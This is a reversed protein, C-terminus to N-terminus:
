FAGGEAIEISAWSMTGDGNSVLFQGAVGHNATGNENTPFGITGVSDIYESRLIDGAILSDSTVGSIYDNMTKIYEADNVTWIELPINSLICDSIFEDTLSTYNISAYVENSGTRLSTVTTLVSDDATSSLYGLRATIDADKVYGLFDSNFSIYTVKGKMGMSKVMNVISVIQEQTYNGSSKLEIYPHLDIHKCLKIFEEFTPIKTGIYDNSFWSGFDYGLLQNYTLNSINGSGNSTRDITNDHLLVAVGDSTFAVDCEAYEFGKKKSLIYAPLTNEPAGASYGRHNVAKITSSYNISAEIPNESLYLEVASQVQEDTAVDPLDDMTIYGIDNELESIKTPIANATIYGVDNELESVKTPVTVDTGGGSNQILAKVSAISDGNGDTVDGAFIANGEWDLTHINRRDSNSSGYGVIHAYKNETDEVNYAGQVHQYYGSAVTGLGEAHSYNANAKTHSGEAHSYSGNAETSNGEAHSGSGNSKSSYGEVHSYQGNAETNYGEAHAGDADATTYYGESHTYSKNAKTHDGEAHSSEGNAETSNGEAHSSSGNSETYSGESHSYSATASTYYGEAVAAYATAKNSYGMTASYEGVVSNSARGLNLTEKAYIDNFGAEGSDSGDVFGITGDGNTVIYQGATGYSTLMGWKAPPKTSITGLDFNAYYSNNIDDVFEIGYAYALGNGVFDYNNIADVVIATIDSLNANKPIIVDHKTFNAVWGLKIHSYEDTELISKAFNVTMINRDVSVEVLIYPFEGKTIEGYCQTENAAEYVSDTVSFIAYGINNSLESVNIPVDDKTIYEMDNELDSVKTPVEEINGSISSIVGNEDAVITVGDVKVHGLIDTSAITDYHEDVNSVVNRMEEFEQNRKEENEERQRENEEIQHVSEVLESCDQVALLAKNLADFEPSAIVVDNSYVNGVVIIHLNMTHIIEQSNADIVELEANIKGSELVMQETFDIKVRGDSLITTPNYIPTGSPTKMRINCTQAVKDLPCKVGNNTCTIIVTRSNVDNQKVTIDKYSNQTFDLNIEQPKIVSM